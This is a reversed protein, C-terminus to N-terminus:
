VRVLRRSWERRQVKEGDVHKVRNGDSRATDDKRKEGHRQNSLECGENARSAAPAPPEQGAALCVFVIVCILALCLLVVIGRLVGKM